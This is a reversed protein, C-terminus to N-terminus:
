YAMPVPVSYNLLKRIPCTKYQNILIAFSISFKSFLFRYGRIRFLTTLPLLNLNLEIKCQNVGANM